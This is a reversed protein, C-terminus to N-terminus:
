QDDYHLVAPFSFSTGLYNRSVTTIDSQVAAPKTLTITWLACLMLPMAKIDPGQTECPDSLLNCSILSMM